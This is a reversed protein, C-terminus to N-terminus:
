YGQEQVFEFVQQYAFGNLDLSDQAEAVLSVLLRSHEIHSMSGVEISIAESIKDSLQSEGIELLIAQLVGIARYINSVNASM